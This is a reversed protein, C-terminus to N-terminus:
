AFVNEFAQASANSGFYDKKMASLTLGAKLQTDQAAEPVAAPKALPPMNKWTDGGLVPALSMGEMVQDTFGVKESHPGFSM